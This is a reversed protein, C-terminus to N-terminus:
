ENLKRLEYAVNRMVETNEKITSEMTQRNYSNCDLIELELSKIQAQTQKNQSDVQSQLRADKEASNFWLGVGVACLLFISFGQKAILDVIKVKVSSLTMDDKKDEGM